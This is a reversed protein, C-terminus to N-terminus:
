IDSPHSEFVAVRCARFNRAPLPAVFGAILQLLANVLTVLSITVLQPLPILQGMGAVDGAGGVGRRREDGVDRKM